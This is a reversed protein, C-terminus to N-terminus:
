SPREPLSWARLRIFLRNLSVVLFKGLCEFTAEGAFFICNAVPQALRDVDSQVLFVGFSRLNFTANEHQTGAGVALFSYSGRAFPDSGWRTVKSRLPREPCKDGYIKQLTAM